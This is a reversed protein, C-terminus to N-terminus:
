SFLTGCSADRHRHSRRGSGSPVDVTVCTLVLPGTPGPCWRAFTLGTATFCV